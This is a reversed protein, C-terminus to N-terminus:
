TPQEKRQTYFDDVFRTLLQECIKYDKGDYPAKYMQWYRVSNFILKREESTLTINETKM